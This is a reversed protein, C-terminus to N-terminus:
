QSEEVDRGEEGEVGKLSMLTLGLDRIRNLIGYLAAQDPIAGSLQMEGTPLVELTLGNFWTDWQGPILHERVRIIYHM